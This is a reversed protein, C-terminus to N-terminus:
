PVQGLHDKVVVKLMLVTASVVTSSSASALKGKNKLVALVQECAQLFTLSIYIM